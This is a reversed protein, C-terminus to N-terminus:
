NQFCKENKKEKRGEPHMEEKKVMIELTTTMKRPNLSCTMMMSMTTTKWRTMMVKNGQTIVTMMMM